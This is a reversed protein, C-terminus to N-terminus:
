RWRSRIMGTIDYVQRPRTAFIAFNRVGSADVTSVGLPAAAGPGAIGVRLGAASSAKPMPVSRSSRKAVGNATCPPGFNEGSPRKTNTM